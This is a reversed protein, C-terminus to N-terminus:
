SYMLVEPHLVSGSFVDVAAERFDSVGMGKVVNRAVLLWGMDVLESNRQRM